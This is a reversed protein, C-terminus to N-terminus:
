CQMATGGNPAIEKFCCSRLDIELDAGSDACCQECEGDSKTSWMSPSCQSLDHLVGDFGGGAKSAICAHQLLAAPTSSRCDPREQERGESLTYRPNNSADRLMKTPVHAHLVWGAWPLVGVWFQIM